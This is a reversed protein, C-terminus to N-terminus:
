LRSKRNSCIRKCCFM